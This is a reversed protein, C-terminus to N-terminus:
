QLSVLEVEGAAGMVEDCIVVVGSINPISGAAALARNVGDKGGKGKGVENGLRTAAADALAVNEALVTVSDADGFSLSHGVTGSSTCVGCPMRGAALKIGVNYSLPSQGAFIAVTCDKKRSIFIDGGNEVIVESAGERLLGEGVFAAVTGAVAAMPGVEADMAAELMKRVLPPAALDVPLPILSSAFEPHRDIYAQLQLRAKLVLERAAEEIERDCIIHLDTEEVCVRTSRLEGLDAMLRYDREVYSEPSSVQKRVQRNGSM